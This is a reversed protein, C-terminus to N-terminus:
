LLARPAPKTYVLKFSRPVAGREHCSAELGGFLFFRDFGRFLEAIVVDIKGEILDLECLLSGQGDLLGRSKTYQSTGPTAERTMAADTL